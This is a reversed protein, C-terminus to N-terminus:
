QIANSVIINECKMILEKATEKQDIFPIEEINCKLFAIKLQAIDKFSNSDIIGTDYQRILLKLFDMIYSTLPSMPLLQM